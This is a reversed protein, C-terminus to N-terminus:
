RSGTFESAFMSMDVLDVDGDGDLDAAVDPPRPSEPPTSPTYGPNTTLLIRDVRAGDERMWLNVGHRGRSCVRITPRGAGDKVSWWAFGTGIPLVAADSYDRSVPMGDLGYHVSDARNDLAWARLWLYYTGTQDFHVQYSLGPSVTEVNDDITLDLQPAAEQYGDGTSGNGAQDTWAWGTARGSGDVRSSYHEAEIVVLGDAEQYLLPAIQSGPGGLAAALLKFDYRDVDGDRDLDAPGAAAVGKPYQDIQWGPNDAGVLEYAGPEVLGGQPRPTLNFDDDPAFDNSGGSELTTGAQLYVDIVGPEASPNLLANQPSPGAAFGYSANSSGYYYNNTAVVGAMGGYFYVATQWSNPQYFLNNCIEIGAKNAVYFAGARDGASFFTNNYVYVDHLVGSNGTNESVNICRGCDFVVNNRINTTQHVQIGNDGCGWIVNRELLNNDASGSLATGHSLIGPYPTDHIVNDRVVNRHCEYKLEIGDGQDGGTHHVYNWEFVSDRVIGASTGQYGHTGLYMGEGNGDYGTDFIECGRVVFYSVNGCSSLNIGVNGLNHMYLDEFVIHDGSAGLEMKVGDSGGNFALGQIKVYRLLVRFNVLNADRYPYFIEPRPEGPAAMVTIWEEEPTYPDDGILGGSSFRGYRGTGNGGLSHVVLTDGYRLAGVMTGLSDGPYAHYTEAFAAPWAMAAVLWCALWHAWSTRM